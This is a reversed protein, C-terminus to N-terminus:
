GYVKAMDRWFTPYTKRVCGPDRIYVNPRKLGILALSMAMRHDNYTVFEVRPASFSCDIGGAPPLIRVGEDAQAHGDTYAFPEVRVGVRALETVLAAVRDTEKVRLTRLGSLASAEIAFCGVVAATMSVDPMLAMDSDGGKLPGNHSVTAADSTRLTLAGREELHKVFLADPQLRGPRPDLGALRSRSGPVLAGAALFYSASSADPEIPLRFPEVAHGPIAIGADSLPGARADLRELLGATMMVYSVSTPLSAFRVHLGGDLWPAVLMLASIFQSSSTRGFEIRRMGDARRVSPRVCLPPFGPKGLFEVRTELGRLADVLEGIPRERMRANGDIVIGGGEPPQLVAAATLFRTATGANNLNLTVVEGPKMKWRGGVGKVRITANGCSEGNPEVEATVDIEAGLRRLARVMVQADDADALAGTLVSEGEALAALLLARNTLSKSGPPRITVDFPRTVPPVHVLPPLEDAALNAIDKVTPTM